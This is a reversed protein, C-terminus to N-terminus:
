ADRAACASDPFDSFVGDVGLAFFQRYENLPDAHYDAALRHPENRMTWAHVQLGARHADEVLTTPALLKRQSEHEATSHPAAIPVILRKWPGIADAYTKIQALGPATIMDGYSRQDAALTWDYPRDIEAAILQVLRVGIRDRLYRLTTPEFCQVFVPATSDQWGARQLAQLLRDELPLGLARHYSPHKLEPYIGIARGHERSLRQALEIVQDFTPIDFLDNYQQDREAFQQRARLTKIEALTFDGAFFGEEEIGDITAVCRRAAFNPLATVDTTAILNPEHRVILAGDRTAVLDPEIFDAGQQVALAYAELTHEPLYGSAGRHAIIIPGLM